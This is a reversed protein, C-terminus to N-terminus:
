PTSGFNQSSNTYIVHDTDSVWAKSSPISGEFITSFALLGGTDLITVTNSDAGNVRTVFGTNKLIVRSGIAIKIGTVANGTNEREVISESGIIEVTGGSTTQIGTIVGNTSLEILDMLTNTVFAAAEGGGCKIGTVSGGSNNSDGSIDCSNLDVEANNLVDVGIANVGGTSLFFFSVRFCETFSSGGTVRLLSISSNDAQLRLFHLETESNGLVLVSGSGRIVSATRGVGRVTTFPRMTLADAGLHYSGAGLQIITRTTNAGSIASMAAKLATGNQTITGTANVVIVNTLEGTSQTTGDPFTIQATSSMITVLLFTAALCLAKM